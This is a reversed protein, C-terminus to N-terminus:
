AKIGVSPSSAFPRSHAARSWRPMRCARVLHQHNSANPSWWTVFMAVSVWARVIPALSRGAARAPDSGRPRGTTPGGGTGVDGNLPTSSTQSKPVGAGGTSPAGGRSAAIRVAGGAVDGRYALLDRIEELGFPANMSTQASRAGTLASVLIAPESGWMGCATYSASIPRVRTSPHLRNTNAPTTAPAAHLMVRRGDRRRSVMLRDRHDPPRLIARLLILTMLLGNNYLDDHAEWATGSATSTASTPAPWAPRPMSGRATGPRLLVGRERLAAAQYRPPPTPASSRDEDRGVPRHLQRLAAVGAVSGSPNMGRSSM